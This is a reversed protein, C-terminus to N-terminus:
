AKLGYEKTLDILYRRGRGEGGNTIVNKIAGRRIRNRVTAEDCKLIAAAEKPTVLLNM